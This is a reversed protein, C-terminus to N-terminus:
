MYEIIITIKKKLYKECKTKNTQKSNLAAKVNQLEDAASKSYTSLTLYHHNLVTKLGKCIM